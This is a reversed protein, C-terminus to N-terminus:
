PLNITRHRQKEERIPNLAIVVCSLKIVDFLKMVNILRALRHRKRIAGRDISKKKPATEAKIEAGCGPCFLDNEALPQDCQYCNASDSMPSGRIFM